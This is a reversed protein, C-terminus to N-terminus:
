DSRKLAKQAFSFSNKLGDIEIDPLCEKCTQHLKMIEQLIIKRQDPKPLLPAIEAVTSFVHKSCNLDRAAYPRIKGLSNLTFEQFTTAHAIIRLDGHDDHRYPEPLERKSLETIAVALWNICNMATFPDNVGPSLARAGIEVLEDSLFMMDQVPTRLDGVIIANRLAQGVQENFRDKPWVQMTTAGRFLFVGPSCALRVILNNESATTLLANEDVMQVFGDCTATVTVVDDSSKERDNITVTETLLATPIDAKVSKVTVNDPSPDGINKPFRQDIITRLDHGIEAIVHSIHISKAVHHVFFILVSVSCLALFIGTLIAINPVFDGVVQASQGLKEVAGTEDATRVTRIVLLCYLFTAIFVGLSFQNARDRLFNSLLRPGYQASAYSVAAITISFVVGAVTIMSGAITSLVVRAGSPKNAYLWDINELWKAGIHADIRTLVVSLIIALISLVAPLFWYNARLSDLLSVLRIKM